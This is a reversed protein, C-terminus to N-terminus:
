KYSDALQSSVRMDGGKIIDCISEVTVSLKVHYFVSVKNQLHPSGCM